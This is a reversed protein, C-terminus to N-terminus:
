SQHRLKGEAAEEETYAHAALVGEGGGDRCLAGWWPLASAEDRGDEGHLTPPHQERTQQHEEQQSHPSRKFPNPARNQHKARNWRSCDDEDARLHFLRFDELFSMLLLIREGRVKRSRQAVNPAKPARQDASRHSPKQQVDSEIARARELMADAAAEGRAVGRAVWSLLDPFLGLNCRKATTQCDGPVKETHSEDVPNAAVVQLEPAEQCHSHVEKRNRTEAAHAQGGTCM